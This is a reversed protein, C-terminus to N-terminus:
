SIAIRKVAASGTLQIDESWDVAHIDSRAADDRYTRVAEIAGIGTTFCKFASPDYITPNPVSYTLYVNDGLLQTKTVSAETQGIKTSTSSVVGIVINVPFMLMQLVDQVTVATKIGAARAKVKAHNRLTRWATTGLVLNIGDTSNVNTALADLQADLQDIPDIDKNSWEGIGAVATTNAAAFDIVKKAHALMTGNLLAQVKGQDLLQQALPSDGALKREHDDVAAELAQPTANYNGDTALFNIRKATGGIGRETQYITFANRTDFSKFQGAATGVQVLPCLARAVAMANMRDAALGFAYNTLTQNITASTQATGAM